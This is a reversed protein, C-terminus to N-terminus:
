RASAAARRPRKAAKVPAAAPAPKATKAQKRKWVAIREDMYDEVAETMAQGDARCAALFLTLKESDFYMALCRKTELRQNAM